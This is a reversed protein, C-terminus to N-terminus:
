LQIRSFLLYNEVPKDVPVLSYLPKLRVIRECAVRSYITHINSLQIAVAYIVADYISYLSLRYM